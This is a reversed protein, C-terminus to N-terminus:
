DEKGQATLEDVTTEYGGSRLLRRLDMIGQMEVDKHKPRELTASEDGLAVKVKGDAMEEVTAVAQLLSLVNRWDINHSTPHQFIQMLTDKHHNNLDM